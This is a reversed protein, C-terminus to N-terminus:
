LLIIATKIFLELCAVPSQKLCLVQGQIAIPQTGLLQVLLVSAMNDIIAVGDGRGLKCKNVLSPDRILLHHLLYFGLSPEHNAQTM